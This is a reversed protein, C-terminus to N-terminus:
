PARSRSDHMHALHRLVQRKYQQRNTPSLSAGPLEVQYNAGGSDARLVWACLRSLRREFGLSDPVDSWRLCLSSLEGDAQFDKSFWGKGRAVAKWAVAGPSDGPQYRKLAEFDGDGTSNRPQQCPAVATSSGTQKGSTSQVAYDPTPVEAAPYVFGDVACHAYGWARWLGMPYDSSITLRGLQHNGPTLDDRLLCAEGSSSRALDITSAGGTSAICISYRERQSADHLAIVHQLPGPSFCDQAAAETIQLGALNRYTALLCSAMLGALLFSLAYGLNLHYNMSAVLMLAVVAIFYGGRQSPLIYIREHELTLPLKDEAATRFFRQAIRQRLGKSTREAPM